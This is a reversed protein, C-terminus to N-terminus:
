KRLNTPGPAGPPTRNQPPANQDPPTPKLPSVAQPPQSQPTGNSPPATAPPATNREEESRLTRLSQHLEGLAHRVQANQARASALQADVTAENALQDARGADRQAFQDAQQAKDRAAQLDTAAYLQAGSQEAAVVLTHARALDATTQPPPASACGALVILTLGVPAPYLSRM